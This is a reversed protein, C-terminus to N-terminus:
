TLELGLLGLHDTSLNESSEPLPPFLIRLLTVQQQEVVALSVRVLPEICGFPRQVLYKNSAFVAVVQDIDNRAGGHNPLDGGDVIPPHIQAFIVYSSPPEDFIHYLLDDM